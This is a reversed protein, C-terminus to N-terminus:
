PKDGSQVLGIYGALPVFSDHALIILPVTDWLKKIAERRGRQVDGEPEGPPFIIVNMSDKGFLHRDGWSDGIRLVQPGTLENTTLFRNLYQGKNGTVVMDEVTFGSHEDEFILRTAGIYEVSLTNASLFGRICLDIGYSVIARKKFLTFLEHIGGRSPCRIGTRFFDKHGLGQNNFWQLNQRVWGEDYLLAEEETMTHMIRHYEERHRQQKLTYWSPMCEQLFFWQSWGSTLTGDFDMAVGQLGPIADIFTQEPINGFLFPPWNATNSAARDLAEEHSSAHVFLMRGEWATHIFAPVKAFFEM